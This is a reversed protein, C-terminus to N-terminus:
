NSKNSELISALRKADDNDKVVITWNSMKGSGTAAGFSVTKVPRNKYEVTEMLAANLVVKGSPDQRLVMRTKKTQRHKLVRLSGLGRVQWSMEGKKEATEDVAFERAKARIEFLIDEDEEGARATALSIQEDKPAEEEAISENASEGGTSTAGPSTARSTVGSTLVSTASLNNNNAAPKPPGGFSFGANAAPMNTSATGFLTSAPKSPTSSSTPPSAGFLNIFPITKQDTSPAKSPSIASTGDASVPGVNSFTIPKGPKWTQDEASPSPSSTKLASFPKDGSTSLSFLSTTKPPGSAQDVSSSSTPKALQAFPNLGADKTPLSQTFISNDKTSSSTQFLSTKPQSSDGLSTKPEEKEEINARKLSGDENQEIRDFMSRGTPQSPIPTKQGEGGNANGEGINADGSKGHSVGSDSRSLSGFMNGTQSQSDTPKLNAFLSTGSTTSVAATASTFLNEVASAPIKSATTPFLTSAPKSGGTVGTASGISFKLSQNKVVEQTKDLKQRQAEADRAEWEAETEEDSNYDAEKRERKEKEANKQALQGFQSKFAEASVPGFKPPNLKPTQTKTDSSNVSSSVQFVPRETQEAAPKESSATIASAISAGGNTVKFPSSILQTAQSDGSAAPKFSFMSPTSATTNNSTSTSPKLSFVGSSSQTAPRTRAASSGPASIASAQGSNTTPKFNFPSASPVNTQVSPHSSSQSTATKTSDQSAHNFGSLASSSPAAATSKPITTTGNAISAFLSATQSSSAPLAPYSVAEPRARKPSTITGSDDSNKGIEEDAKRKNNSQPGPVTDPRAKKPSGSMEGNAQEKELEDDAKRKNNTQPFNNSVQDFGKGNASNTDNVPSQSYANSHGSRNGNVKLGRIMAPFGGAKLIERRRAEHFRMVASDGSFSSAHIVHNKLGRDLSALRYVTVYQRAQDESFRHPVSSPMATSVRDESALKAAPVSPLAHTSDASSPVLGSVSNPAPIESRTADSVAQSTESSPNPSLSAHESFSRGDNNQAVLDQTSAAREQDRSELAQSIKAKGPNNDVIVGDKEGNPSHSLNPESSTNSPFIPRPAANFPNSATGASDSTKSFLNTTTTPNSFLSSTTNPANMVGFISNSNSIESSQPMDFLTKAPSAFPTTSEKRPPSFSMDIDASSSQATSEEAPAQSSDQQNPLSNQSIKTSESSGPFTNGSSLPQQLQGFLNLSPQDRQMQSRNQEFLSSAAQAQQKQPENPNQGLSLAPQAQQQHPQSSSQVFFLPPAPLQQQQPQSSSQGFFSIAPQNQQQQPQSSNQSFFSAAPQNQQQQPQSSSQGFFSVTPENQQQQQQQQPQPQSSSQSFFLPPAPSQQQQLQSSSQGFFSVAPQNQQQQPQSSNQGFISVAPQNQQQQPQSSTQGFISVAPQNQQQQPQSSSQGFFSVAPQNQQQHTQTSAQGYPFTPQQSQQQQPQNFSQRFFSPTQQSHQPQQNTSHGFLNSSSSSSQGGTQALGNTFSATNNNQAQVSQEKLFPSHAAWLPPANGEPTDSNDIVMKPGTSKKRQTQAPQSSPMQFLNGQYGANNGSTATNIVPTSSASFPNSMSSSGNLAFNFNSTPLTPQSGFTSVNNSSLNFAAAASNFQFSAPEPSPQVANSSNFNYASGNQQAVSGNAINPDVNGFPSPFPQQAKSMTGHSQTLRAGHRPGKANALRDDINSPKVSSLLMAENWIPNIIARSTLSGHKIVLSERM